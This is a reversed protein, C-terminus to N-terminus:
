KAGWGCLKKGVRNYTDVQEKTYRTDSASWYIPKATKCFAAADSYTAGTPQCFMVLIGFCVTPM